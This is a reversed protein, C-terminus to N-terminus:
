VQPKGKWSRTFKCQPYHSCGLFKGFQSRRVVLAGGCQPCKMDKLHSPEKTKLGGKETGGEKEGWNKSYHCQPFRECSWFLGFKGKKLLLAGGCEPCKEGLSIVVNEEARKLAAAFPQYFRNLVKQWHDKGEAIDDLNKEMLATFKLDVVEPFHQVLLDNVLFGLQTPVLSKKERSLYRRTLLTQITTAYTSPRGIGLREMTKILSAETYREPPSTEKEQLNFGKGIVRDGKQFLPLLDKEEDKKEAGSVKRYGDFKVVRGELEFFYPGCEIKVRSLEVISAAMQSALFREWVLTYLKRQWQNLFPAVSEPTRFISTPRIAEHAEQALHSKTKYFVPKAPLYQAGIREKIFERAEEQARRAISLSDTRHYTILGTAGQDGLEVGEYLQQALVMTRSASLGLRRGAEQQLTSTTFPPLPYERKEEKTAETVLLPHSQLFSLIEEAEERRKIGPKPFRKGEKGTLTASVSKAPEAERALEATIVFYKEPKFSQREREREVLLRLTASQVRGASLGRKIHQGLLPSLTYGVIRDLIRRAQQANVLNPDIRRPNAFAQKVAEPTIEHFAVRKLEEPERKLVHAIHWAIAEGERDEDTALYIDSLNQAAKRLTTATKQKGPLVRYTPQFGNKIDVGFEEPPLDRIHGMTAMIRFGKGLLGSLTRSKTPSEVIVLAKEKEM